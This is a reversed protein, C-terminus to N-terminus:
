RLDGDNPIFKALQSRTQYDASKIRLVFHHFAGFDDGHRREHRRWAHVWHRIPLNEFLDGTHM